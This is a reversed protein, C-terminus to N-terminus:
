GVGFNYIFKIQSLPVLINEKTKLFYMKRPLELPVILDISNPILHEAKVVAYKRLEYM